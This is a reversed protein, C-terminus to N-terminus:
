SSRHTVPQNYKHYSQIIQPAIAFTFCPEVAGILQKIESRRRLRFPYSETNYM